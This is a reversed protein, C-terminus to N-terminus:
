DYNVLSTIEQFVKNLRENGHKLECEWVTITRWGIQNLYEVVRIDREVNGTFKKQWFDSRTAPTSAFRCGAHRHWFCGHVFLVTRFKPFVLDPKGPLKSDHLRYRLGRAHLYRRVLVEPKTDKGRIGSMMRSRTKQDVVDAM